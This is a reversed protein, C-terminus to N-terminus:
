GILLPLKNILKLLIDLYLSVKIPCFAEKNEYFSYCVKVRNEFEAIEKETNQKDKELTKVMEQLGQNKENLMLLTEENESASQSQSQKLTQMKDMLQDRADTM